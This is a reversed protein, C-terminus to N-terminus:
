DALETVTIDQWNHFRKEMEQRYVPASFRHRRPRFHQM